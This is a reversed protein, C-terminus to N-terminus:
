TQIVALDFNFFTGDRLLAYVASLLKRAIAIITKSDGLRKVHSWYWDRYPSRKCKRSAHASQCLIPKLYINGKLIKRSKMKGASEDNRPTLGAWSCLQEPSSFSEHPADTIEALLLLAAIEDFGPISDIQQIATMYPKAIERMLDILENLDELSREYKDLLFALLRREYINLMGSIANHIESATHKVSGSICRGVETQTISGKQALVHLIRMGTKSFINSLVSSLKFGHAQLLKETRNIYRSKEGVCKQYTRAVERLNRFIHDPVFSQELLGHQYLKAIWQADKKDNKRGPVNRMHHANVVYIKENYERNEIAEYIPNWYVGTSEMAVNYCDNEDLWETFTKLGSPTNPFQAAIEEPPDIGKLICAEIMENHVDIGCCCYLIAQM